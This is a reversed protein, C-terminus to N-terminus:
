LLRGRALDPKVTCAEGITTRLLLALQAALHLDDELIREAREIWAEWDAVLDFLSKDGVGDTGRLLTLISHVRRKLENPEGSLIRHAIWM